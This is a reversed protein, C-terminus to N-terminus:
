FDKGKFSKLETSFEATIAQATAILQIAATMIPKLGLQKVAPDQAMFEPLAEYRFSDIFDSLSGLGAGTRDSWAKYEFAVRLLELTIKGFLEEVARTRRAALVMAREEPSVLM